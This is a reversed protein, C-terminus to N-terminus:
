QLDLDIMPNQDQNLDMGQFFRNPELFFPALFSFFVFAIAFSRPVYNQFIKMGGFFSSM